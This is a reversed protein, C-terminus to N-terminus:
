VSEFAFKETDVERQAQVVYRDGAIAEPKFLENLEALLGAGLKVGGGRVDERLHDVSTTGPLAIVQAGQHLLWAIALEALTCGAQDAIAQMPALLKLNRAYNEPQFRPMPIRIDGKTFGGM